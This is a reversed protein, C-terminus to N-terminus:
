KLSECISKIFESMDEKKNEYSLLIEQQSSIVGELHQIAMKQIKICNKATELEFAIDLHEQDTM